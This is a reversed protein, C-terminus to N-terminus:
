RTFDDIKAELIAAATVMLVTSGSTMIQTPLSGKGGGWWRSGEGEAPGQWTGGYYGAETRAKTMISEATGLLLAQMEETGPLSLVNSAYYSAYTGETWADRDNLLVGGLDYWKIIGKNIAHVRDLYKQDETVRYFKAALTAMAMNGFLASSSGAETVHFQGGRPGYKDVEVYYIGDEQLCKNHLREYSAFALDYYKQEGTIEWLRFWSLTLGCEYLSMSDNTDNYHMGGLEEDYWRDQTNQCLNASREIWWKDNTVEYFILYLMSAWACDDSAPGPRGAPDELLSPMGQYISKFYKAQAILYAAYEAEGTLVWMDYVGYLVMAGEWIPASTFPSLKEGGHTPHIYGTKTDGYWWNNLNDRVAFKALALYLSDTQGYMEYVGAVTDPIVSTDTKPPATTAPVSPVATTTSASTAAEQPACGPLSGLLLVASLALATIKVSKKM